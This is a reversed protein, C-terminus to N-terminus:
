DKLFGFKGQNYDEIAQKIEEQTQILKDSKPVGGFTRVLNWYYYARLFKV